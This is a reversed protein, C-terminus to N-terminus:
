FVPRKATRAVVAASAALKRGSDSQRRRRAGKRRLSRRVVVAGIAKALPALPPASEMRVTASRIGPKASTTFFMLVVYPAAPTTEIPVRNLEFRSGSSRVVTNEYPVGQDSFLVFYVTGADADAVDAGISVVYKGPPGGYAYYTDAAYPPDASFAFEANASTGEGRRMPVTNGPPPFHLNETPGASKYEAVVVAAPDNPEPEPDCRARCCCCCCREGCGPRREHRGSGRGAKESKAAKTQRAKNSARARAPAPTHKALAAEKREDSSSAM